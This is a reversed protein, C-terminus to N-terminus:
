NIHSLLFKKSHRCCSILENRKNLTAMTPRCIIFFKEWLCLNCKKNTNSYPKAQKVKRWKIKYEIKQDKLNWIYKSLETANKYRQNKFSCIHNRYRFKFTTDCLGIYTQKTDSTTVEAQYIIHDDNCSGNMPCKNKENCNCNTKNEESPKLNNLKAKNNNTIIAGINSMCSYSIKLTNRSFIKHLPNSKTFHKDILRLFYKGINTDVSKSYLPNYWTINRQRNRKRKPPEEKYELNYRYGSKDLADQYVSKTKDFSEKDSSIASLRRNISEPINKLISPPHNSKHHVYLPVNGPKM